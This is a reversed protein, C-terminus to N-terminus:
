KVEELNGGCYLCVRKFEPLRCPGWRKKCKDCEYYILNWSKAYDVERAGDRSTRERKCELRHKRMLSYDLFEKSCLDCLYIRPSISAPHHAPFPETM